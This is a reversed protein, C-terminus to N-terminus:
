LVGYLTATSGAAFMTSGVTCVLSVQTIAATSSWLGAQLNSFATTANNEYVSDISVSKNNSSTYNPIYVNSNSFGNATNSTCAMYIFPQFTASSAASGNGQLYRGSLNTSLGNFRVECYDTTTTTRGSLVVMLDTYGSPVNTFDISTQPTAVTVDAIKFLQLAM